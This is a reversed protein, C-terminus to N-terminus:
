HKHFLRLYNQTTQQAVTVLDLGKLNAIFEAVYRVNAPVNTHGRVPEPALYPADTEILIRELPIARAIEQLPKSNKFTVIGSFSIYLNLDIARMAMDLDETFCHLVGGVEEIQEERLLQLTDEKANRTHVIIPKKCQKAVQIQTRFREQQLKKGVAMNEEALRYYDLGTEGIAVVNAHQAMALYDALNPEHIIDENPHLGISIKVNIYKESIHCLEAFQDVHTAVCLMSLVQNEIAQRVVFDMDIALKAYDILQLHCHTDVFM